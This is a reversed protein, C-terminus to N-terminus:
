NQKLKKLRLVEKQFKKLLKPERDFYKLNVDDLEMNKLAKLICEGVNDSLCDCIKDVIKNINSDTIEICEGSNRYYKGIEMHTWGGYYLGNLEETSYITSEPIFNLTLVGDFERVLKVLDKIKKKTM